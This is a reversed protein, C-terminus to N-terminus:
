AARPMRVASAASRSRAARFARLRASARRGLAGRARLRRLRGALGRLVVVLLWLGPAGALLAALAAPGRALCRPAPDAAGSLIGDPIRASASPTLSGEEGNPGEGGSSVAAIRTTEEVQLPMKEGRRLHLLTSRVLLFYLMLSLIVAQALVTGLAAGAVGLGAGPLSLGLGPIRFTGRPFILLANFLTQRCKRRM